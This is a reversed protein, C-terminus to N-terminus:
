QPVDFFPRLSRAEEDYEQQEQLANRWFRIGAETDEGRALALEVGAASQLVGLWLRMARERPTDPVAEFCRRALEEAEEWCGAMSLGEVLEGVISLDEHECCLGVEVAKRACAKWSEPKSERVLDVLAEHYLNQRHAEELAGLCVSLRRPTDCLYEGAKALCGARTLWEMEGILNSIADSLKESLSGRSLRLLKEVVAELLYPHEVNGRYALLLQLLRQRVRQQMAEDFRASDIAAVAASHVVVFPDGLALDFAELLLPPLELGSINGLEGFARAGAARLLPQSAMMARYIHPLVERLSEAGGVLDGLERVLAARLETELEDDLADIFELYPTHAIEPYSRAAKALFSLLTSRISDVCIRKNMEDLAQLGPPAISLEPGDPPVRKTLIACVGLVETTNKAVLDEMGPRAPRFCDQLARLTKAGPAATALRLAGRLAIEDATDPPSGRLPYRRLVQGYVTGLLAAEDDRTTSLQERLANDTEPPLSVLSAAFASAVYRDPARISSEDSAPSFAAAMFDLVLGLVLDPQDELLASAADAGRGRSSVYESRLFRRLAVEVQAPFRKFMERLPLDNIVLRDSLGSRDHTALYILQPIAGAVLLEDVLEPHRWVIEAAEHVAESRALLRLAWGVAPSKDDSATALAKLSGSARPGGGEEMLEVLSDIIRAGFLEPKACAAAALRTAVERSNERDLEGVLDLIGAEEPSLDRRRQERRRAREAARRSVERERRERADEQARHRRDSEALLETWNPLDVPERHECGDCHRNAFEVALGALHMSAARGGGAYPCTFSRMGIPLGTEAEIIGTGGTVEVDLHRCWNKGLEIVRQNAKGVEIYRQIEEETM